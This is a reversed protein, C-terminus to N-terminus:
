EGQNEQFTHSAKNKHNERILYSMDFKNDDGLNRKNRNSTIPKRKKEKRLLEVFDEEDVDIYVITPKSVKHTM